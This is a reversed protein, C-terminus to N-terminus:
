ADTVSTPRGSTDYAITTAHSLPDTVSTLQHYTSDYTASTTVADSTGYLRTVSTLNGNTDYGFRTVRSLPDTISELIPTGSVLTFTTTQQISEGVADIITTPRQSSFSVRRTYGRPNTVETQTIQGGSTTYAFDYVGTDAQTQDDVRGSADYTNTLYTINRPDKITLMRHSTDYTFETVGSKADTVKWLRGSGDYTYGVTRGASDAIQTVRDSGDTTFILTRGNPSNIRTIQIGSREITIQNGFRDRIGVLRAGCTALSCFQYVTGDRLTLNWGPRSTTWTIVSKYFAGRTGTGDFIALTYDTGPNRRTYHIAGGNPMVLDAYSELYDGVLVLDYAHSAGIGFARSTADNTRYTRKMVLPLVDPLLLDTKDYQFLGTGLDVPDGGGFFWDWLPGLSPLWSPSALQLCNSSGSGSGSGGSGGSGGGGSGGSGSGSDSSSLRVIRQGDASVTARDYIAWGRRHADYTWLDVASGPPLGTTNPYTITVRAGTPGEIGAGHTQMTFFALPKVGPPVPVPARDAPLPTITLSELLRGDRGRLAVGAGVEVELGPVRSTRARRVNRGALPTRTAQDIPTLWVVHSLVNTRGSAIDVQIEHMGYDRASPGAAHAHVLMVQTGAALPSVLFRGTEDTQASARGLQITVGKLPRGAVSLVQGALATVGDAAQLPALSQLPSASLGTKWNTSDPMWIPEGDATAASLDPARETSFTVAVNNGATIQYTSDYTLATLPRVFVLRGGEAPVTLSALRGDRGIISIGGLQRADVPASFRLAIRADVAVDTSGDVPLSGALEARNPVQIESEARTQFADVSPDFVDVVTPRLGARDFGGSIAVTGDGRLTATHDRRPNSLLTKTSVVTGTEPNWLEADDLLDGDSGGAILVRGDTLLTASHRARPTLNPISITQFTQLAPDFIEASGLARGRADIGGVILVRGDPLITSTHWARGQTLGRALPTMAGTRPDQIRAVEPTTEGGTVLLRGDSLVTIAQGTSAADHRAAPAQQKAAPVVAGSLSLTSVVVAHILIASRLPPRM